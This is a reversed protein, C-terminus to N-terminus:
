DYLSSIETNGIYVHVQPDLLLAPDPYLYFKIGYLAGPLTLGRILLVAMMVYPFTATFHVVQFFLLLLFVHKMKFGLLFTTIGQQGVKGAFKVGKWVCFYCIIWSLLLCGVLDWRWSGVDEIGGSM